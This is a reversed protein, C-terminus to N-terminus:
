QASTVLREPLMFDTVKPSTLVLEVHHKRHFLLQDTVDSMERDAKM